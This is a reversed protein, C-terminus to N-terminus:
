SRAALPSHALIDDIAEAPQPRHFLYGQALQCSLMRLLSAQEGTEVGEGVTALGLTEALQLIARLFARDQPAITPGGVFAKDIKLIDVPLHRLYSLSSYGTGFDDIAVRVGLDRVEDLRVRAAAAEATTEAILASETIELVLADGPLGTRELAERVVTPFMPDRLQHGSVNVTTHVGYGTFWGVARECATGLVWTGIPVILGNEEAIPIFDVPSVPDGGPPHWRLLSEVAVVRNNTLDVVPQYALTFEGEALAQRLRGTIRAYDLRATRLAPDFVVLRNRGARKAARVALDADRLAESATTTHHAPLLGASATV